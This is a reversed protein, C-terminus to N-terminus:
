SSLITDDVDQEDLPAVIIHAENVQEATLWAQGPPADSPPTTAAETKHCAAAGVALTAVVGLALLANALSRRTTMGQRGRAFGVGPGTSGIGQSVPPPIVAQLVFSRM